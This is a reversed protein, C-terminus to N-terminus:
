SFAVYYYTTSPLLNSYKGIGTSTLKTTALNLSGSNNLWYFGIIAQGNDILAINRNDVTDAYKDAITILLKPQFGLTINTGMSYSSNTTFSGTVITCSNTIGLASKLSSLSSYGTGGREIPLVGSTINNASHTHSPVTDSSVKTPVNSSNGFYLTNNHIILKGFQLIKPTAISFVTEQV